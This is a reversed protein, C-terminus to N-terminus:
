LLTLPENGIYLDLDGDLDYDGLRRNPNPLPRTRVPPLPRTSSPATAQMKYSRIPTSVTNASGLEACSSYTSTATTTTTPKCWTSDALLGTSIPRRPGPGCLHRGRWQPFFRLQGALDSTSVFFDLYGDGDFDDAVAGGSLSFTDLGSRLLWM